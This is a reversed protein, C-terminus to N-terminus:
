SRTAWELNELRNDTKIGNKHNIQPKNEPNPIFAMWVSRHVSVKKYACDDRTINVRLYGCRELFLKMIRPNGSGNYDLSKIRGFNSVEYNSYNPIPLWIEKSKM